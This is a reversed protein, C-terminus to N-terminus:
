QRPESVGQNGLCGAWESETYLVREGQLPESCRVPVTKFDQIARFLCAIQLADADATALFEEACSSFSRCSTRELLM